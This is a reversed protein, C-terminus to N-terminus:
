SKETWNRPNISPRINSRALTELLPIGRTKRFRPMGLLSSSNGAVRSGRGPAIIWHVFLPRCTIVRGLFTNASIGLEKPGPEHSPCFANGLLHRPLGRHRDVGAGARRRRGRKRCTFRFTVRFAAGSRRLFFSKARANNYREISALSRVPIRIVFDIPEM